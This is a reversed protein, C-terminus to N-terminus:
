AAREQQAQYASDGADRLPHVVATASKTKLFASIPSKMTCNCIVGLAGSGESVRITERLQRVRQLQTPSFCNIQLRDATTLTGHRLRSWHDATRVMNSSVMGDDSFSNQAVYRSDFM